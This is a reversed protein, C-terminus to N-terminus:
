AGKSCSIAHITIASEPAEVAYITVIGDGSLCIPSYNGSTADSVGFVVEPFFEETVGTCPIDAKYGFESYTTDEVWVTTELTINSFTLINGEGVDGNLVKGVAEDIQAGTYNSKYSM